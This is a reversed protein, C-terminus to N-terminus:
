DIVVHAFCQALNEPAGLTRAWKILEPRDEPVAFGGWVDKFRKQNGVTEFFFFGWETEPTLAYVASWSGSTIFSQFSVTSPRVKVTVAAAVLAAYEQKRADTLRTDVGACPQDAASVATFIFVWGAVGIPLLFINRNLIGSIAVARRTM